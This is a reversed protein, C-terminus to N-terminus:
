DIKRQRDVALETMLQIIITDSQPRVLPVFNDLKM